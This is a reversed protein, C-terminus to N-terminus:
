KFYFHHLFMAYLRYATIKRFLAGIVLVPIAYNTYRRSRAPRGLPRLELGLLTLFTREKVDDLGARPDLWVEIWHTGPIKGWPLAAPAHLLGSVEM